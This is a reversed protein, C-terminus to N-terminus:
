SRYKGVGTARAPIILEGGFQVAGSPIVVDSAILLESKDWSM